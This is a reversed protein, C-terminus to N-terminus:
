ECKFSSSKFLRSKESLFCCCKTVRYGLNSGTVKDLIIDENVCLELKGSECRNYSRLAVRNENIESDSLNKELNENM